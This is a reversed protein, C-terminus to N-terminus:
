LTRLLTKFGRSLRVRRERASFVEGTQPRYGLANGLRLTGNSKLEYELDCADLLRRADTMTHKAMQQMRDSPDLAVRTEDNFARVYKPSCRISQAHILLPDQSHQLTAAFKAEFVCEGSEHLEWANDFRRTHFAYGALEIPDRIQVDSDEFTEVVCGSVDLVRGTLTGPWVVRRQRFVWYGTIKRYMDDRWDEIDYLVGDVLPVYRSGDVELMVRHNAGLMAHVKRLSLASTPQPAKVYGAYELFKTMWARPVGTKQITASPIELEIFRQAEEYNVDLDLVVARIGSDLELDIRSTRAAASRKGDAFCFDPLGAEERIRRNRRM